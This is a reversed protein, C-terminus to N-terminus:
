CKKAIIFLKTFQLENPRPEREYKKLITFGKKELINKIENYSFINLFVKEDTM